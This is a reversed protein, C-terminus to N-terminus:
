EVDVSPFWRAGINILLFWWFLSFRVNIKPYRKSFTNIFPLLVLREPRWPVLVFQFLLSKQKQFGPIDKPIRSFSFFFIEPLPDLGLHQWISNVWIVSARVRGNLGDPPHHFMYKARSQHARLWLSNIVLSYSFCEFLFFTTEKMFYILKFQHGAKPHFPFPRPSFFTVKIPKINITHDQKWAPFPRFSGLLWAAQRGTSPLSASHSSFCGAAERVRCM